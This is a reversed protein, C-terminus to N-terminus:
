PNCVAYDLTSPDGGGGFTGSVGNITMAIAGNGPTVATTPDPNSLAVSMTGTGGSGTQGGLVTSQGSFKATADYYTQVATDSFTVQDGMATGTSTISVNGTLAEGGELFTNSSPDYGLVYYGDVTQEDFTLTASSAFDKAAIDVEYFDVTGDGNDNAWLFSCTGTAASPTPSPSATATATASPTPSPQSFTPPPTSGTAGTSSTSTGCAAAGFSAVLVVFGLLTSRGM